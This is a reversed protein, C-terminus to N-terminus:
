NREQRLLAWVMLDRRRGQVVEISRLVGERVFGAKTAVRESAINGDLTRLELREFGAQDFAWDALLLLARPAIGRGRHKRVIWYGVEATKNELDISSLGVQGLLAGNERAEIAYGVADAEKKGAVNRQIYDLADKETYPFPIVPIWQSIGRDQLAQSLPAVDDVSWPRIVIDEDVLRTQILDVTPSQRKDNKVMALPARNGSELWYRKVSQPSSDLGQPLLKFGMAEYFHVADERCAVYVNRGLDRMATAVLASGVGQRRRGEAVLVLDLACNDGDLEVRQVCGIVTNDRAVLLPGLDLDLDKHWNRTALLELAEPVDDLGAIGIRM